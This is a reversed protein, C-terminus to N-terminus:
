RWRPTTETAHSAIRPATTARSSVSPLEKSSSNEIGPDSDWSASSWSSAAEGPEAPTPACIPKTAGSPVVTASGALAATMWCTTAAAPCAGCTSETTLGNSLKAILGSPRAARAVTRYSAACPSISGGLRSARSSVVSAAASAPNSTATPPLAKPVVPTVIPAVSNTPTATATSTRTSVKPESSAAPIFRSVATTPMATPM